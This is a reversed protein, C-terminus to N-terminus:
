ANPAAAITLLEKDTPKNWNAGYTGAAYFSVMEHRVMPHTWGKGVLRQIM